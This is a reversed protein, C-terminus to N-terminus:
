KLQKQIISEDGPYTIGLWKDKTVYVKIKLKGEKIFVNLVAPLLCEATRSTENAKKFDQLIKNLKEPVQSQFAFINMSCLDTEKIGKERINAFSIGLEERIETMYEEKNVSFIGRNATEKEPLVNKLIYGVSACSNETKLHSALIQFAKEGYLDDGNCVVFPCDLVKKTACLADATGWPKDRKEADFSQLCYKVPIGNYNDGFKKRFPQETKDGVIFIIESFGAPLAQNLSYEILTERETVKALQKIKGGFRSSMGAVMYVLALKM